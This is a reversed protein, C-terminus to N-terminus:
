EAFSKLYEQIEPSLTSLYGNRTLTHKININPFSMIQKVLAFDKNNCASELANYVGKNIDIEPRNLLIQVIEHRKWKISNTLPTEGYIM